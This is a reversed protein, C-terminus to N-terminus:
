KGVCFESFIRNIIEEKAGIGIIENLAEMGDKIDLAICESPLANRFGEAASCTARLAKQLSRTQRINPVITDQDCLSDNVRCVNMILRKLDEIGRNLLASTEITPLQEWDSSRKVADNPDILDIKNVVVIKQKEEIFRFVEFDEASLPSGAEVMFLVLDARMIHKKTKEVGIREIENCTKRLGATDSIVVPIGDIALSEEIIDRTTGPIDTVIVRDKQVLRNLLSSKGVNPKGVISIRLGDRMIQGSGHQEILHKLQDQVQILQTFLATESIPSMMNEDSFDIAAELQVLISVLTERISHIRNKLEGKLQATAIDLSKLTKANILDIVAEAQTLDIRGNLYARKTFEGPEALRAGQQLVINLIAKLVVAGSHANIEVIDERTYSHPALMVSLLVEDIIQKSRPDVIHGYFLHHSSSTKKEAFNEKGLFINEAIEVADKGTIKIIGIGGSGLPTAIATITDM